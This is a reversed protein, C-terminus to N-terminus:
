GRFLGPVWQVPPQTPGLAPRSTHSFDRGWRSEIGPDSYQPGVGRVCPVPNSHRYTSCMCYSTASPPLHGTQCCPVARTWLGLLTKLQVEFRQILWQPQNVGTLSVFHRCSFYIVYNDRRTYNLIFHVTVFTSQRTVTTYLPMLM